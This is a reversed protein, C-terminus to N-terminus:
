VSCITPLTLHTYSVAIQGGKEIIFLREGYHYEGNYEQAIEAIAPNPDGDARLILRSQPYVTRFQTLCELLLDVDYYVNLYFTLDTQAPKM